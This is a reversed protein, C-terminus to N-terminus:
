KSVFYVDLSPIYRIKNECVEACGEGAICTKIAILLCAGDNDACDQCEPDQGDVTCCVSTTRQQKDGFVKFEHSISFAMLFDDEFRSESLIEPAGLKVDGNEDTSLTFEIAEDSEISLSKVQEVALELTLNETETTTNEESSCSVVLVGIFLLKIFNKM